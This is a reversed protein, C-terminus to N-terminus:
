DNRVWQLACITKRLEVFQFVKWSRRGYCSTHLFEQHCDCRKHLHNHTKTPCPISSNFPGKLDAPIIAAFMKELLSMESFILVPHLISPHPPGLRSLRRIVWVRLQVEFQTSKCVGNCEVWYPLTGIFVFM